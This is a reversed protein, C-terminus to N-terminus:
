PNIKKKKGKIGYLVYRFFPVRKLLEWLGISLSLSAVLEIIYIIVISLNSTYPALLYNIVIMLTIHNIYIGWGCGSMYKSFKNEFNLFNQAFGLIGLTMLWAYLVSLWNNLVEYKAYYIGYFKIIYCVGAAIGTLLFIWGFKKLQALLKESSFVYYGLMFGMPYYAMRYTTVMPVNSVQAEGFMVFYLLLAVLLNSKEGLAELKNKKDIKKVLALMLCAVILVHCFWLGGTGSLISIIFKVVIPVDAPMFMSAELWGAIWHVCIVGLTSPVLLKTVRNRLFERVTKKQLTYKACIGSVVFLLLMFWQYVAYQFVGAFTWQSFPLVQSAYEVPETGPIVPSTNPGLKQFMPVSDINDYFFFIHFVVVIFITIWRLNDIWAKRDSTILSQM